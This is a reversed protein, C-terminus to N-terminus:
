IVRDAALRREHLANRFGMKVLATFIAGAIGHGSVDAVFFIVRGDRFQVFDYLDGGVDSLPKTRANIRVARNEFSADPFLYQQLKRAIMLEMRISENFRLVEGIKLGNEVRKLLVEIEEPKSIFDYVGLRYSEARLRNDTDGTVMLVPAAQKRQENIRRLFELGNMRPMNMDLMILDTTEEDLISLAEEGDEALLVQYGERGLIRAMVDRVNKEDDIVLIKKKM